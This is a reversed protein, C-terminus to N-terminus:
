YAINCLHKLLRILTSRFLVFVSCLVCSTLIEVIYVFAVL